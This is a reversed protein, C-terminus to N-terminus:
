NLENSKELIKEGTETITYIKGKSSEPTLCKVLKKAELESLARSIHAININLEKSLRSPTKPNQLSELTKRRYSSSIIFSVIQWNTDKNM